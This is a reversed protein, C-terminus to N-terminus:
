SKPKRKNGRRSKKAVIGLADFLRGAVSLTVQQREGSVFKYLNGYDVEARQAIAHLTEGSEAIATRLLEALDTTSSAMDIPHLPPPGMARLKIHIAIPCSLFPSFLRDVGADTKIALLFGRCRSTGSGVIAGGAGCSSRPM